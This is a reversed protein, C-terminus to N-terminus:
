PISWTTAVFLEPLPVLENVAIMVRTGLYWLKTGKQDVCTPFCCGGGVTHAREHSRREKSRLSHQECLITVIIDYSDPVTCAARQTYSRHVPPSAQYQYTNPFDAQHDASRSTRVGNYLSAGSAMVASGRFRQPNPEPFRHSSCLTKKSAVRVQGDDHNNCIRLSESTATTTTSWM